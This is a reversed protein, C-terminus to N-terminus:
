NGIFPAFNEHGVVAVIYASVRLIHRRRSKLNQTISLPPSRFNSMSKYLRILLFHEEGVISEVGSPARSLGHHNENRDNSPSLLLILLPPSNNASANPILPADYNSPSEGSGFSYDSILLCTFFPPSGGDPRFLRRRRSLRVFQAPSGVGFGGSINPFPEVPDMSLSQSSAKRSFTLVVTRTARGGNRCLEAFDTM